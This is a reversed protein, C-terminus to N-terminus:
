LDKIIKSRKYFQQKLLGIKKDAFDVIIPKKSNHAKRMFRGAVQKILVKSKIPACMFGIELTDVDIGTGFLQYTSIIIRHTGDRIKEMIEKRKKKPTSSTLSISGPILKQLIEVQEKRQCLLVIQQKPYDALKSIILNNRDVNTSLDTIMNQYETVDFLPFHYDTDYSIYDPKLLFQKAETMSINFILPGTAFFIAPTLGDGREPTASMGYKYRAMLNNLVDFYTAAPSIHNEDCIIQGFYTNIEGLDIKTLTQLIGVTIPKINYKGSGILGVEPSGIIFQKIRDTFQNALELTNVLILTNINPRGAIVACAVVTKGSGTPMCVSGFDVSLMADIARQQYDRPIANFKGISPPTSTTVFRDDRISATPMLKQVQALYGIPAEFTKGDYAFYKLQRPIGWTQLNMSIAKDFAPNVISLDQQMTAVVAPDAGTIFIKNKLHIM